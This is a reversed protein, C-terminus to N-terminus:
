RSASRSSANRTGNYAAGEDNACSKPLTTIYPPTPHTRQAAQAEITPTCRRTRTSMSATRSASASATTGSMSGQPSSGNCSPLFHAGAPMLSRQSQSLVSPRTRDAKSFPGTLAAGMAAAEVSAAADGSDAAETVEVSAAEM